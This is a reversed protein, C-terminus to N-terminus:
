KGVYGSICYSIMKENNTKKTCYICLQTGSSFGHIIQMHKSWCRMFQVARGQWSMLPWGRRRHSMADMKRTKSFWFFIKEKIILRRHTYRAGTHPGQSISFSFFSDLHQGSYSHPIYLFNCILDNKLLSIFHSLFPLDDDHLNLRTTEYKM